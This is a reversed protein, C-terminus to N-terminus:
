GSLDEAARTELEISRSRGVHRFRDPACTLIVVQCREGAMSLVAGLKELRSSDSNGLADDFILPVGGDEAVVLACALRALLSLQERAGGSLSEFPVARGKLTREKLTLDDNLEISFDDGYVFRGLQQIREALPRVYRKRAENRHRRLTEFLLRAAGAQRQVAEHVTEVRKLAVKEAAVKEGLGEMGAQELRARVASRRERATSMRGTAALVAQSANDAALRVQDPGASTLEARASAEEEKAAALADGARAAGQELAQDGHQSRAEELAAHEAAIQSARHTAGAQESVMELELKTAAARAQEHEGAVEDRRRRAAEAAAKSERHVTQAADFDAPLTTDEQREAPYAQIRRGLSMVKHELEDLSLDRLDVKVIREADALQRVADERERNARVAADLDAVGARELFTSFAEQSAGVQNRLTHSDAAPDVHIRAVTGIDVQRSGAVVQEWSEGAALKTTGDEATLEVDNLAEVRLRPSGAEAAARAQILGTHADRIAELVAETVANRDLVERASRASANAARIRELRESLQAHELQNRLFAEDDAARAMATEATAAEARAEELAALAAAEADRLRKQEPAREDARARLEVDQKRLEALRAVLDQRTRLRHNCEGQASRAAETRAELREVSTQLANVRELAQSHEDARKGLDVLAQEEDAIARDLRSSEEADEEVADLRTKLIRVNERLREVEAAADMLLKKDKGTALTFFREYEAQAADYLTVDRDGARTEGAARDLATALSARGNLTPYDLPTDQEIRLARWLGMDVTKALLAEVREHAERGTLNEARPAHIILETRTTKNFCKVYTAHYEGAEFELSVETGGDRHVPSVSKVRQARSSDQCDFLLSISEALSSKGVENPGAIITVGTRDFTVRAHDVGRFNRVELALFKM